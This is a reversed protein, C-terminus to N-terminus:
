LVYQAGVRRAARGRQDVAEPEGCVKAAVIGVGELQEGGGHEPEPEGVGGVFEDAVGWHDVAVRVALHTRDPEGVVRRRREKEREVLHLREVGGVPGEAAICALLRAISNRSAIPGPSRYM